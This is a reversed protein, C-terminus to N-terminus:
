EPRSEEKDVQDPNTSAKDERKRSGMLTKVFSNVQHLYGIRQKLIEAIAIAKPINKGYASLTIIVEQSNLKALCYSIQRRMSSRESVQVMLPDRNRYNKNVSTDVATVEKKDATDKNTFSEEQQESNSLDQESREIQQSCSNM